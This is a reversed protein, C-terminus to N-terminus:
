GTGAGLRKALLPLYAHLGPPTKYTVEAEGGFSIKDGDALPVTDGKPVRHGNVATGNSSGVDTVAFSGRGLPVLNAHVKSVTRVRLVVDNEPARGVTVRSGEPRGQGPHVAFILEPLPSGADAGGGAAPKPAATSGPAPRRETAELRMDHITDYATAAAGSALATELLLFPHPFRQLFEERPLGSAAGVFERLDQM